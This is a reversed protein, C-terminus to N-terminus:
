AGTVLDLLDKYRVKGYSNRPLPNVVRVEIARAPVKLKLAVEEKAREADADNEVVICLWDEKGVCAGDLAANKLIIEVDDLAVRNGYIKLFRSTRGIIRYLGDPTLEAIDGTALRGGMRDDLALDGRNQAYGLMVSPSYCILEGKDGGDFEVRVGPIPIGICDSHSSAKEPPLYAIRPGAETQGYMVFLRRNQAALRQAFERVIDPSLKGGAQTLTRLSPVGDEPHRLRKMIEFSVPVGSLSTAGSSRMSQWFERQTISHKSLHLQAGAVFHSHLVSLGFSYHIPLHAFAIEDGGIDLYSAISQANALLQTWNFRALKPSGTSGSTSLMVSLDEFLVNATENRRWEIELDADARIIADPQYTVALRSLFGPDIGHDLLLVAHGRALLGFYGAVAPITNAVCLFVLAKRGRAKEDFDRLIGDSLPLIQAYQAHGGADDTLFTRDSNRTFHDTIAQIM